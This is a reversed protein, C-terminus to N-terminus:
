AASANITPHPSEGSDTRSSMVPVNSAPASIRAPMRSSALALAAASSRTDQASSMRSSWARAFSSPVVEASCSWDIVSSSCLFSCAADARNRPSIIRTARSGLSDGWRSSANFRALAAIRPSYPVTARTRALAGVSRTAPGDAVGGGGPEGSLVMERVAEIEPALVRDEAQAPVRARVAEYAADVGRGSRLPRRLDLGRCAALIEIALVSAVDRSVHDAKRAALPALSVHDEQNASTPISEAAAPTCSTRTECVLAAATVQAMMFGSHLGGEVALFPPLGSSLSPNVISEIRRESISGLEHLALAAHDMAMAVPEGHFNGGSLVDGEEAFVLPNDTASNIERYVVELAHDLADRAAGHVQPVCRLSYADQVKHTDDRHSDLIGSGELLRRVNEATVGQGPHPRAEHIRRDFPVDTGLLAELSLAAALDATRLLVDALDLTRAGIATTIQVGNVLALGEKAELAVPALGARAM